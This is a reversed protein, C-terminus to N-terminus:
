KNDLIRWASLGKRLDILFTKFKLTLQDGLAYITRSYASHQVFDVYVQLTRM